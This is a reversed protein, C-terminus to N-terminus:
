RSANPDSWWMMQGRGPSSEEGGVVHKLREGAQLWGRSAVMRKKGQHLINAASGVLGKFM